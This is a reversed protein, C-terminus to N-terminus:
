ARDEQCNRRYRSPTTGTFREFVHRLNRTESFGCREAIEFLPLKEKGALLKKAQEVRVMCIYEYPTCSLVERFQQTLWRRSKGTVYVLREIGFSEHTNERIYQVAAAIQPDDIAITDTSRRQVIRDPPILIETDTSLPGNILQNLLSAAQYGVEHDSRSVSSLTVQSLECIVENNDVGVVAVDSPVRLGLRACSDIIMAARLDISAMIGVPLPLSQLWEDLPKLWEQASRLSRPSSPTELISYEGGAEKIRQLFGRKRQQGTWVRQVGFYGFHRFGRELLHDAVMRGMAEQDVMVRPLGAKRLVGSLNVVPIGLEGAIRAERRTTINALIGDGPWNQFAEISGGFQEPSFTFAWNGQQEAFTKIGRLIRVQHPESLAFAIAVQVNKSM